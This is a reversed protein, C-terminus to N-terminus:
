DVQIPEWSSIVHGRLFHGWGVATQDIAFQRYVSPYGAFKAHSPASSDFHSWNGTSLINVINPNSAHGFSPCKPDFRFSRKNLTETNLQWFCLDVYVSPLLFPFPRSPFLSELQRIRGHRQNLSIARAHESQTLGLGHQHRKTPGSKRTVTNCAITVQVNAPPLLPVHRVGRAQNGNGHHIRSSTLNSNFPHKRLSYPFSLRKNVKTVPGLIDCYVTHLSILQLHGCYLCDHRLRGSEIAKM